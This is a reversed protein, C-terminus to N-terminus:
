HQGGPITFETVIYAIASGMLNVILTAEAQSVNVKEHQGHRAGPLQSAYGYFSKLGSRLSKEHGGNRDRFLADLSDGFSAKPLNALVKAAAELANVSERVAGPRDSPRAHLAQLARAYQEGAPSLPGTLVGLADSPVGDLHLQTIAPQYDGFRGATFTYALGERGLVDEIRQEYREAERRSAPTLQELLDFVEVWTANKVVDRLSDEIYSPTWDDRPEVGLQDCVWRYGRKLGNRDMATTRLLTRLAPPAFETRTRNPPTPTGGHLREISV